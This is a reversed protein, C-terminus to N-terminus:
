DRKKDRERGTEVHFVSLCCTRRPPAPRSPPPSLVISGGGYRGGDSVVGTWAVGVNGLGFEPEEGAGGTTTCRFEDRLPANPWAILRVPFARTAFLGVGGIINECCPCGLCLASALLM